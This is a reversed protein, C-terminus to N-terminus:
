VVGCSFPESISFSFGFQQGSVTSVLVHTIFSRLLSM